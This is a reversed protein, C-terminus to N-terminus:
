DAGVRIVVTCALSAHITMSQADWSVRYIAAPGVTIDEISWRAPTKGLGHYWTKNGAGSFVLPASVASLAWPNSSISRAALRVTSSVANLQRDDFTEVAPFRYRNVAAM